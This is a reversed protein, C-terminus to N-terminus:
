AGPLEGSGTPLAEVAFRSLRPHQAPADARHGIGVAPSAMDVDLHNVPRPSSGRRIFDSETNDLTWSRSDGHQSSGLIKKSDLSSDSARIKATRSFTRSALEKFATAVKSFISQTMKKGKAAADKNYKNEFTELSVALFLSLFIYRIAFPNFCYFCM